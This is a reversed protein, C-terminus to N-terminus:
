AVNGLSSPIQQANPHAGLGVGVGVALLDVRWSDRALRPAGYGVVHHGNADAEVHVVRDIAAVVLEAAAARGVGSRSCLANIRAPVESISRAHITSGGGRHGTTFAMLMDVVEPGRCEGIALRDPRMRLAQVLLDALNVAGKGESNPQRTCLAVHQPHDIQLEAVDELTILRERGPIAELAAALLTTKGSGTAGSVLLTRYAAIDAEILESASLLDGDHARLGGFSGLPIRDLRPFRISVSTGSVGSGGLVAHVRIGDALTVDVMPHAVDLHRGGAAILAMAFGRLDGGPAYFGDHRHRVGGRHHSWMGATDDLFVDTIDPDFLVWALPGMEHAIRQRSQIHALASTM